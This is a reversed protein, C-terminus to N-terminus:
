LFIEFMFKYIGPGIFVDIGTSYKTEAITTMKGKPTCREGAYKFTYNIKFVDGYLQDVKALSMNTVTLVTYGFNDMKDLTLMNLIPIDQASRFVFLLLLLVVHM